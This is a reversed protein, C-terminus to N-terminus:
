FGIKGNDVSRPVDSLLVIVDKFNNIINKFLSNSDNESQVIAYHLGLTKLSFLEAKFLM